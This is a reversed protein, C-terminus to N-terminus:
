NHKLFFNVNESTIIDVPLYEIKEPIKNLSLYEFLKKVGKYMQEEPRQGILFKIIGSKLYIVNKDLLDYGIINIKNIGASDLYEAIKYSKSGTIFISGIKRNKIFLNDIEKKIKRNIPDQINLTIIEEKNRGSAPFYSLFGETRNNLHHVNQLNRAINIVLIDKNVPTVMDTLQGAVRGSQFIDEGTYALFNTESIFGDIFVFPINEKSLRECFAISEAKFIPAMIIGDPHSHLIENTKDQFDKESQFDYFIQELNVPFPNLEDMAKKIGIHHRSWFANDETPEPLLSILSFSKKTKLTQAIFNPSYDLEKIIQLLKRKTKEAVEGRNHLVRDVTGISVGSLAAIDKIRAKNKSLMPILIDSYGVEKRDPL